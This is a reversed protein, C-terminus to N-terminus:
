QRHQADALAVGLRGIAEVTIRYQLDNEIM